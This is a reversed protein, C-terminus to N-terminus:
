AGSVLPPPVLEPNAAMLEVPQTKVRLNGHVKVQCSLRLHPNTFRGLKKEEMATRPNVAGPEGAFVEVKRLDDISVQTM